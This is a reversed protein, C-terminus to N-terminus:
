VSKRLHIFLERGQRPGISNYCRDMVVCEFHPLFLREYEAKNGGYPPRDQNLPDDFLVGVLSGGPTLLDRCQVVYRERKSPPLACFFTQELILDFEGHLAFFDAHLLQDKPFASCRAHLAQLPAASIDAVYTNRFGKQYLYEAEYANGAGPILIKLEHSDLQDIYEKLPTTISGADWPIDGSRYRGTWYQETDTKITM